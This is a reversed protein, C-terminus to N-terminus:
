AAKKECWEANRTFTAKMDPNDTLDIAKRWWGGAAEYCSFMENQSAFFVAQELPDTITRTRTLRPM